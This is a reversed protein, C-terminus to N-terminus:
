PFLFNNKFIKWNEKITSALNNKWKKKLAVAYKDVHKNPQIEGHVQEQLRPTWVNKYVHYGKVYFIVDIYTVVIIQIDETLALEKKTIKLAMKM